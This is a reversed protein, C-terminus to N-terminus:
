WPSSLGDREVLQEILVLHILKVFMELSIIGLTLKEFLTRVLLSM